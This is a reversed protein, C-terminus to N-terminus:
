KRANCLLIWDHRAEPIAALFRIQSPDVLKTKYDRRWSPNLEQISISQCYADPPKGSQRLCALSLDDLSGQSPPPSTEFLFGNSSSNQLSIKQCTWATNEQVTKEKLCSSFHIQVYRFWESASQLEYLIRSRVSIQTDESLDAAIQQSCTSESLFTTFYREPKNWDCQIVLVVTTGFNWWYRIWFLDLWSTQQLLKLSVQVLLRAM